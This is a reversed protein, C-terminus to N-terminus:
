NHSNKKLAHETWRREIDKAIENAVEEISRYGDVAVIRQPYKALLLKFGDYVKEHFSLKELDLRNEEHSADKHIRDLCDKPKVDLFYTVDPWIGDIAFENIKAVEDIGVGRAYGQYVLSSDVFRDSLVLKGDNLMPEVKEFLHQRRSAAYLLTETKIDMATNKNDLIVNRIQEAIPVGGPERTTSVPLGKEKLIEAVREMTTTKGSGDCGEFTVFFGKYKQEM